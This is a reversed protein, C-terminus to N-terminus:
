KSRRKPTAGNRGNKGPPVLYDMVSELHRAMRREATDADGAIVAEAIRTHVQHVEHAVRDLSQLRPAQEGLVRSIMQVFLTMAPNGTLDAILVHFDHSPLDGKVRSSRRTGKIRQVEDDLSEQIRLVGEPTIRQAALRVCSLELANRAETVQRPQIREFRLQLSVARVVAGLDPETIVLGGGPGRRMEAVGHHDVIRMAERFVARSVGYQEILDAESGLVTGVPWDRLIIEDEIHQALVEGLKRSDGDKRVAHDVRRTPM